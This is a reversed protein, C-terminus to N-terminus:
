AVGGQLLDRIGGVRWAATCPGLRIPKVVYGRGIKPNSWFAHRVDSNQGSIKRCIEIYSNEFLRPM